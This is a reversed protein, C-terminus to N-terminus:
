VRTSHAATSFVASSATESLPAPPNPWVPVEHVEDYGHGAPSAPQTGMGEGYRLRQHVNSSLGDHLVQHLVQSRHTRPWKVVNGKDDAVKTLSHLSVQQGKCGLQAGFAVDAM